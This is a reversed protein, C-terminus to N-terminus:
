ARELDTESWGESIVFPAILKDAIQYTKDPSEGEIFEREETLPGIVDKKKKVRSEDDFDELLIDGDVVKLALYACAEKVREPIIDNDIANLDEDYMEQRPWQCAQTIVTRYGDWTYHYNLYRTAQRIANEKVPTTSNSWVTSNGYNEVIQDAEVVSILANATSKGTGDEVVFTTAM